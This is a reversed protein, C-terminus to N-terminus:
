AGPSPSYAASALVRVEGSAPFRVRRHARPPQEPLRGRCADFAVAAPNVDLAARVGLYATTLRPNIEIVIADADTLVMDVGICGRLGAITECAQVAREFARAIRPHVLPTEGGEYAPAASRRVYQRSLALPVVRRGDGVLAVSAATGEIWHQLVIQGHGTAGRAAAVASVLETPRSARALGECGAGCAPKAVIPYGLELAIRAVDDSSRVARTPPTPVGARALRAPLTAKNAAQRIAAASPGLLLRGAAEVQDALRALAGESEPAILWVADAARVLRLFADPSSSTLPEVQVAPPVRLRTRPDMTTTIANGPIKALDALLAELMAAGQAAMLPPLPRGALGGGSVYEHALIRM